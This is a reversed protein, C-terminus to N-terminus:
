SPDSPKTIKINLARMASRVGAPKKLSPIRDPYKKIFLKSLEQTRYENKEQAIASLLELLSTRREDTRTRPRGPGSFLINALLEILYGWHFPNRLDFKSEDFLKRVRDKRDREEFGDAVMQFIEGVEASRSEGDFLAGQIETDASFDALGGDILKRYKKRPM